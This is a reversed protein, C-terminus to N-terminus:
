PIPGTNSTGSSVGTHVHASWLIGDLTIGSANITLTHGQSSLTIGSSTFLGISAGTKDQVQVNPEGYMVLTSGDVAPFTTSGVPEFVLATLNPLTTVKPTGAGLGSVQGLAADAARVVGQCGPQIPHRVYQSGIIPVTVNPLTAPADSVQFSVTVIAGSVSVVSCPLSKGTNQIQDRARTIANQNVSGAFWVKFANDAM